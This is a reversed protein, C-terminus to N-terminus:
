YIIQERGPPSKPTICGKYEGNRHAMASYAVKYLHEATLPQVDPLLFVTAGDNDLNCLPDLQQRKCILKHKM